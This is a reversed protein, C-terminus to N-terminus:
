TDTHGEDDPHDQGPHEGRGGWQLCIPLDTCKYVFLVALVFFVVGPGAVLAFQSALM